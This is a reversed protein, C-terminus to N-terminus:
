NLMKIVRRRCDQNPSDAVSRIAIRAGDLILTLWGLDHLHGRLRSGVIAQCSRSDSSQVFTAGYGAAKEFGLLESIQSTGANAM